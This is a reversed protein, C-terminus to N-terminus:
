KLKIRSLRLYYLDKEFDKNFDPHVTYKVFIIRM